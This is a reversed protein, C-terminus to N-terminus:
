LDEPWQRSLRRPIPQTRMLPQILPNDHRQTKRRYNTAQSHLVETIYPMMLDNHLTKNTVFWPANTITRLVKSQYNQLIKINSPKSCGWLEIGYTWIPKLIVKYVTLKNKLSLQSKRGLLWNMKQTKLHLQLKKAKIHHRWTLKSDLHLGLYKVETRTPIPENNLLLHPTGVNRTTFNVQASKDTNVRIRWKTLWPQLQHLHYQVKAAAATPNHDLALIATDDAFTAITTDNTTPIDATYLLYLLPGLVSGQPVGATIPYYNPKSDTTKIDFYRNTLYSQLLRYLYTPMIPQIKSLLGHHWVKDFAQRIDLFVASCIQKTELGTRITNVIMHCQHLTSHGELFGFQHTPILTTAFNAIRLKLLREFIKSLLPLLSIPRYSTVETPPKGPKPVMVIQAYKWQKPFYSLYLMRNFLTTLFAIATRPLHKLIEGTILDHGAAKHPNISSIQALVESPKIPRPPPSLTCSDEALTDTEDDLQNNYPAFTKTLHEAFALAKEANTRAWTGDERRLPSVAPTPRKFTKTARWLSRDNPALNKIYRTFTHNHFTRITAQLKHTLNNLLRKDDPQRTRQWIRRARRKELVLEKIILPLNTDPLKQHSPPTANWAATQLLVIFEHVAQEIEDHEKLRITPNLQQNIHDQFKHWNTKSSCLHPVPEITLIITSITIVISSHDSTLDFNSAIDCHTTPIQKTIAFDLLDPTKHIDTPWYTPEGTSLFNLNNLQAAQHLARGKQTTLRSGWTPHKANWDGAVLFRPGLTSFYQHYEPTTINHRPPSYIAAITITWNATHIEIKPSQIKSSVYPQLEHHKITCKIIIASGGHGRGDPHNAYYVMYNPIKIVTKSTAHTESILLIDIKHIHLFLSIDTTRNSVGNANWAAIRLTNIM